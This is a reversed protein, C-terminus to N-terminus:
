DPLFFTPLMLTGLVGDPPISIVNGGQLYLSVFLSFNKLLFVLFHGWSITIEADESKLSPHTKWIITKVRFELKTSPRWHSLNGLDQLEFHLSLEIKLNM